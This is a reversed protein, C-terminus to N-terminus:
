GFRCCALSSVWRKTPTLRAIRKAEAEVTIAARKSTVPSGTPDLCERAYRAGGLEFDYRWRGRKKDLFVTV